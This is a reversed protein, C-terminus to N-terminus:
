FMWGVGLLYRLDNKLAGPAPTSDRKWETKFEAFFDGVLKLRVGADITLNYDGPDEFAPLWELNHLFIVADNLKRDFHYALRLSVNDENGDSIYDEYVYALGAETNFNMAPREIWQYGLGVGPSLRYNLDAIRDHEVKGLGYGYLEPTWFRDYKGLASWNDTTTIKDGTSSDKQRGINYATGLTFRDNNDRDKRRLSADARIGLDETSTNGRVLAGNVVVSGSWKQPPPNIKVIDGLAISQGDTTRVQGAQDIEIRQSIKQGDATRIDIPSDTSFTAVDKMDVIVVGAIASAIKLKGDELTEIKGTLRDGNKFVIQDALALGTMFLSIVIFATAAERM